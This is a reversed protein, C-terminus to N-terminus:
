ADADTAEELDLSRFLDDAVELLADDTLEGESLAVRRLIEAAAEKREEDSLGDFTELLAHVATTM